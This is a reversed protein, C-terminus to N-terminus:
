LGPAVHTSERITSSDPILGSQYASINPDYTKVYSGKHQETHPDYGREGKKFFPHKDYINTAYAASKNRPVNKINELIWQIDFQRPPPISQREKDTLKIPFNVPYRDIGQGQASLPELLLMMLGSMATKGIRMGMRTLQSVINNVVPKTVPKSLLKTLVKNGMKESMFMLGKKIEPDNNYFSPPLEEVNRITYGEEGVHSFGGQYSMDYWDEQTEPNDVKWQEEEAKIEEEINNIYSKYSEAGEASINLSPASEEYIPHLPHGPPPMLGAKVADEDTAYMGRWSVDQGVGGQDTTTTGPYAGIVAGPGPIPQTFPSDKSPKGVGSVLIIQKAM